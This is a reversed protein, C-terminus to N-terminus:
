RDLTLEHALEGDLYIRVVVNEPETGLDTSNVEFPFLADETKELLVADSDRRSITLRAPGDMIFADVILSGGPTRQLRPSPDFSKHREIEDRDPGAEAAPPADAPPLAGDGQAAAAPWALAGLLIAVAWRAKGATVTFPNAM